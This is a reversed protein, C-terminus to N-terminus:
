MRALEQTHMEWFGAISKVVFRDVEKAMDPCFTHGVGTFMKDELHFDCGSAENGNTMNSLLWQVFPKSCHYPVLKDEAGSLNLFTKGRVTERLRRKLLDQDAAALDQRLRGEDNPGDIGKFMRSAPDFAEMVEVVGAPFDKSGFFRGERWSDRRSLRARDDLLRQLDPTGIVSIGATIRPEM